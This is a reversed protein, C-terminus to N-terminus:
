RAGGTGPTPPAPSVARKRVLSLADQAGPFAPNKAVVQALEAEAEPYRHLNGLIVGLIYRTEADRPQIELAARLPVVAEAPHGTKALAVGLRAQAEAAKPDRQVARQLPEVAGAFDGTEELTRGLYLAIVPDDPKIQAATRLHAIAGAADGKAGLDIAVNVQATSDDPNTKVSAAALTFTNRWVPIQRVSRATLVCLVVTGAAYAAITPGRRHNAVAADLAWALALAPGVLALYAYHAAVTSYHTAYYQVFGLMPLLAAVFVLFAVLPLRNGSRVMRWTLLGLTAPVLWTAYGWWSGLVTSVKRPPIPYVDRPFVVKGLYWALADGAVVPRAWLPVDRGITSGATTFHAVVACILALITWSGLPVLWRRVPRRLVLAELVAAILPVSAASPKALLALVYLVTALAYYRWKGRDEHAYHLYALVALLGFFTSILNNMGTTWAVPQVQLPHLAFLLAGAASPGIAAWGDRRPLLRRLFFFVLVANAVHLVLSVTHFVAPTSCAIDGGPITMPTPQAGLWACFAWISYTVPMYLFYYSHGWFHAVHALTVPPILYPNQFINIRDDLHVFSFGIIQGFTALTVAAVVVAAALAAPVAARRGPTEGAAAESAEGAPM